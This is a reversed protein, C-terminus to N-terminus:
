AVTRRQRRDRAPERVRLVGRVKPPRVTGIWQERLFRTFPHDVRMVCKRFWEEVAEFAPQSVIRATDFTRFTAYRAFYVELSRLEPIDAGDARASRALLFYGVLQRVTERELRPATTTKLDVLRTGTIIDADAGQVAASCWGFTPNLAVFSTDVLRDFPTQNLLALLEDVERGMPAEFLADGSYGARYFTDLRALRAAATAVKRRDAHTPQRTRAFQEVLVRAKKVIARARRFETSELGLLAVTHEAVWAGRRAHPCRRQLEFRTLYDFATGIISPSNSRRPIAIPVALKPVYEPIIADLREAVERVRIWRTLSM